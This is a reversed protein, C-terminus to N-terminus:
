EEVRYTQIKDIRVTQPYPKDGQIKLVPGNKTDEIAFLEGSIGMFMGAKRDDKGARQKNARHALIVVRKGLDDQFNTM